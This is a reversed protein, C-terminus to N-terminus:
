LVSRLVCLIRNRINWMATITMTVLQASLYTVIWNAQRPRPSSSAGRRACQAIACTVSSSNAGTSVPTAGSHSM